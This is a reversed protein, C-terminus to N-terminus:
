CYTTLVEFIVFLNTTEVVLLLKLATRLKLFGDVTKKPREVM